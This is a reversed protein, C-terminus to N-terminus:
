DIQVGWKKHKVSVISGSMRLTAPYYRKQFLQMQLMSIFGLELFYLFIGYVEFDRFSCQIRFSLHCPLKQFYRYCCACLCCTLLFANM